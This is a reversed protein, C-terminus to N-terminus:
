NYSTLSIPQAIQKKIVKETKVNDNTNTVKVLYIVNALSNTTITYENQNINNIQEVVMGLTNILEVETMNEGQIKLVNKFPNPFISRYQIAIGTVIATTPITEGDFDTQFNLRLVINDNNGDTVDLNKSSYSFSAGASAEFNM